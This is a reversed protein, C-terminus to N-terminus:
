PAVVLEWMQNNGSNDTFQIVQTGDTTSNGPMDLILGSSRNKIKYYGGGAAVLQWQESTGGYDSWLYGAAGASPSGGMDLLLGTYINKIKYYGGGADILMWRLLPNGNELTWQVAPTGNGNAGVAELGKGSNRNIIRYATSNSIGPTIRVVEGVGPHFDHGAWAGSYTSVWNDNADFSGYSVTAGTLDNDIYFVSGGFSNGLYLENNAAGLVGLGKGGSDNGYWISYSGLTKHESGGWTSSVNFAAVNGKPAAAIVRSIKQVMTTFARADGTKGEPVYQTSGQVRYWATGDREVYPAGVASMNRYIGYEFDYTQWTGTRLHYPMFAYGAELLAAVQSVFNSASAGGEALHCVNGQIDWQGLRNTLETPDTNYDDMGLIDIGTISLLETNNAIPYDSIWGTLNLRTVVNRSSSHVAAGLQNLLSIMAAKQGGGWTYQLTNAPAGPPIQEPENNIQVMMVLKGTDYGAVHNMLATIAKKERAIFNANSFNYTQYWKPYVSSNNAIYTPVNPAGCVSSGFWLIQVALGYKRAADISRDICTYNYVDQATEFEGWFIAFSISTYGVSKAAACQGDFAGTNWIDYGPMQMANMLYPKGLYEVYWKGSNNVLKSVAGNTATNISKVYAGALPANMCLAAVLSARVLSSASFTKM